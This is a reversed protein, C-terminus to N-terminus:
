LSAPAIAQCRHALSVGGAGPASVSALDRATKNTTGSNLNARKCITATIELYEELLALPYPKHAVASSFLPSRAEVTGSWASKTQRDENLGGLRQLFRRYYEGLYYFSHNWRSANDENQWAFQCRAKITESMGVRIKAADILEKGVKCEQAIAKAEGGDGEIGHKIYESLSLAPDFPNHKPNVAHVIEHALDLAQFVAPKDAAVLIQTQFNLKESQGKVTRTATIETKSILGEEIPINMAKVRELAAKGTPTSELLAIAATLGENVERSTTEAHAAPAQMVSTILVIITAPSLTKM